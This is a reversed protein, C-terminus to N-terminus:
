QQLELRIGDRVATKFGDRSASVSYLGIRLPVSRYTGYPDTQTTTVVNTALNRITVRAQPIRAGSPDSVTGVIQGTDVQASLQHGVLLLFLLLLRPSNARRM